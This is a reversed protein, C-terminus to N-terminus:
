EETVQFQELYPLVDAELRIGGEPTRHAGSSSLAQLELSRVAKVGPAASLASFLSRFLM